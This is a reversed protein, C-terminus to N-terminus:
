LTTPCTLKSMRQTFITNESYDVPSDIISLGQYKFADKLIPKFENASEVRYGKAGFSEAYEIFDPNSFEVFASRGFANLQKLKIIGYSGDNIIM